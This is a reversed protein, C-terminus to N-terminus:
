GATALNYSPRQSKMMCVTGEAQNKDRLGTGRWVEVSLALM